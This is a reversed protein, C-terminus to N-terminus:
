NLNMVIACCVRNRLLQVVPISQILLDEFLYAESKSLFVHIVNYITHRICNFSDEFCNLNM